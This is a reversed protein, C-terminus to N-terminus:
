GIKCRSQANKAHMLGKLFRKYLIEILAELLDVSKLTEANNRHLICLSMSQIENNMTQILFSQSLTRTM